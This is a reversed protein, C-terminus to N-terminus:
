SFHEKEFRHGYITHQGIKSFLDFLPTLTINLSDFVLKGTSTQCLYNNSVMCVAKSSMVITIVKKSRQPITVMTVMHSCHKKALQEANKAKNQIM